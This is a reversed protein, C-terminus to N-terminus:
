NTTTSWGVAASIAELSVWVADDEVVDKAQSWVNQSSLSVAVGNSSLIKSLNLLNLLKLRRRLPWSKWLKTDNNLLLCLLEERRSEFQRIYTHAHIRFLSFTLPPMKNIIM